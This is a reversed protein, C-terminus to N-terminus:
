TFPPQLVTSHGWVYMSHHGVRIFCLHPQLIAIGSSEMAAQLAQPVLRAEQTMATASHGPGIPRVLAIRLAPTRPAVQTQLDEASNYTTRRSSTSSSTRTSRPTITRVSFTTSCKTLTRKPSGLPSGRFCKESNGSRSRERTTRTSCPSCRRQWPPQTSPAAATTTPWSSASSRSAWRATMGLTWRSSSASPRPLTSRSDSTACFTSSSRRTSRGRDTRTSSSSLRM